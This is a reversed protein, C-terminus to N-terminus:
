EQPIVTNWRTNFIFLKWCFRGFCHGLQVWNNEKLYALYSSQSRAIFSQPIIKDIKECLLDILKSLSLKLSTLDNWDITAWLKFVIKVEDFGDIDKNDDTGQIYPQKMYHYLFQEVLEIGLCNKCRNDYM